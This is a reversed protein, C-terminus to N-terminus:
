NDGPPTALLHYPIPGSEIVGGIPPTHQSADPPIIKHTPQFVIIIMLGYALYADLYNVLNNAM